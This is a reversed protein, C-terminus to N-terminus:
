DFPRQGGSHYFNKFFITFFSSDKNSLEVFFTYEGAAERQLSRRSTQRNRPPTLPQKCLLLSTILFFQFDLFPSDTM